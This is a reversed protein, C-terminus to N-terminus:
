QSAGAERLQYMGTRVGVREIREDRTIATLFTALPDSAAVVYGGRAVLEYWDQYHLPQPHESARLLEIALEALRRGGLAPPADGSLGELANLAVELRQVEREAARVLERAQALLRRQEALCERLEGESARAAGRVEEGTAQLQSYFPRLAAPVTLALDAKM